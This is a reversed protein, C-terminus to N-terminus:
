DYDYERLPGDSDDAEDEPSTAGENPDKGNEAEVVHIIVRGSKMDVKPTAALTFPHYFSGLAKGDKNVANKPPKIELVDGAGFDHVAVIKGATKGDTTKVQLGVLDSYYFEDEDPEPLQDREIYLATGRLAEAQERTAVEPARVAFGGKVPRASEVTLVVARDEGILPGFNFIDEPTDTFSALKVEGDVGFAGKIQGLKLRTPKATM